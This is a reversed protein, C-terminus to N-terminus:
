RGADGRFCVPRPKGSDRSQYEMGTRWRDEQGGGWGEAGRLPGQRLTAPADLNTRAPVFDYKLHVYHGSGDDEERALAGRDREFSKGLDVRYSCGASWKPASEPAAELTPYTKREPPPVASGHPPPGPGPAGSVGTPRPNAWPSSPNAPAPGMGPPAPRAHSNSQSASSGGGDTAAPMPSRPRKREAAPIAADLPAVKEGGPSAGRATVDTAPRPRPSDQNSPPLASSGPVPPRSALVKGAAAREQISREAASGPLVPHDLVYHGNQMVCCDSLAKWLNHFAKQRIPDPNRGLRDALHAACAIASHQPHPPLPPPCLCLFLLILAILQSPFRATKM